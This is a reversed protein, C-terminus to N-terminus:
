SYCSDIKGVQRCIDRCSCDAAPLPEPAIALKYSLVGLMQTMLWMALTSPAVRDARLLWRDVGFPPRTEHKSPILSIAMAM